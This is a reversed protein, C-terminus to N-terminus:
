KILSKSYKTQLNEDLEHYKKSTNTNKISLLLINCAIIFVTLILFTLQWYNIIGSNEFFEAIYLSFFGGLKYGTWWGIVAISAAAAISKTEHKEM